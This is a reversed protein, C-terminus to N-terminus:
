HLAIYDDLERHWLDPSLTKPVTEENLLLDILYRPKKGGIYMSKTCSVCYVIVDDVPMENARKRMQFKVKGVPITGYFSDGCCVGKERTKGPEILDINMKRILTRIAEQIKNENRTPCADLITMKKGKYDPFPFNKSEAIIEWLSVTSTHRYDNKFRKNCGPCVNIINVMEDFGPEHKCCTLHMEIDELSKLLYNYIKVSAEPKYLMLACGPAFRTKPSNM